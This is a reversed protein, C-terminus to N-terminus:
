AIPTGNTYFLVTQYDAYFETFSQCIANITDADASQLADNFYLHMTQGDIDVQELIIDDPYIALDALQQWLQVADVSADALLVTSGDPLYAQFSVAMALSIKNQSDEDSISSLGQNQNFWGSYVSVVCLLVVAVSAYPMIRQLKRKKTHIQPAKNLIDAYIEEKKGSDIQIADLSRKIQETQM